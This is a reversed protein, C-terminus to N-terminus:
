RVGADIDKETRAESGKEVVSSNISMAMDSVGILLDSRPGDERDWYRLEKPRRGLIWVSEM